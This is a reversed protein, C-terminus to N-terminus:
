KKAMGKVFGKNVPSPVIDVVRTVPQVVVAVARPADSEVGASARVHLGVHSAPAPAVAIRGLRATVAPRQRKM